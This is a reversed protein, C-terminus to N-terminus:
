PHQEGSNWLARRLWVRSSRCRTGLLQKRCRLLSLVFRNRSQLIDYDCQLTVGFGETLAKQVHRVFAQILDDENPPPSALLGGHWWKRMAEGFPRVVWDVFNFFTAYLKYSVLQSYRYGYSGYTEHWRHGCPMAWDSRINREHRLDFDLQMGEFDRYYFRNLPVLTPSLALLLDQAHSELLLGHRFTMQVWLRAFPACIAEDIFRAPELGCADLVRLLLPTRSADGGFLSFLPIVITRNDKIEGPVTRLIAGGAGSFRPVFGTPELFYELADPLENRSRSVLESLGVSRAVVRRSLIRDGFAPSHLSTKVFIARQPAGDPWALLTRVSSTPVAWIKLGGAADQAEVDTLFQGYGPLSTPHIPFLIRDSGRSSDLTSFGQEEREASGHIYLHKRQIWFCPLEFAGCNQPLYRTDFGPDLSTDQHSAVDHLHFREADLFIQISEPLQRLPEQTGVQTLNM